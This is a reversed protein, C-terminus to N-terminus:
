CCPTVQRLTRVSIRQNEQFCSGSDQLGDVVVPYTGNSILVALENIEAMLLASM